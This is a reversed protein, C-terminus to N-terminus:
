HKVADAEAETARRSEVQAMAALIAENIQRLDYPKGVIELARTDAGVAEDLRDKNTTTLVVGRDNMAPSERLTKFFEWNEQYPPSIDFIVISPKHQTLYREFDIRGKKLDSLHCGILCHHGSADLMTRVMEVTDDSANFLAVVHSVVPLKNPRM